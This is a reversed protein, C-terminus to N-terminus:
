KYAAPTETEEDSAAPTLVTVATTAVPEGPFRILGVLSPNKKPDPDAQVITGFNM